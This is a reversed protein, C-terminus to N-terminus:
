TRRQMAECLSAWVTDQDPRADLVLHRKPDAQAQDLYGQRVRAHFAAGKQEMRDLDADFERERLLPNMRLMATHQDVDFIVVLDPWVQGLAIQGVRLIDAVPIGGATGQYALTSSIFRDALVLQGADLAPKIKESVLQARSAMYLLMECRIDMDGFRPDLLLQRVGEGIVTGGPERVELVDLGAAEAERVMRRFQTTKGSGDPGDFVVFRGRLRDFWSTEDHPMPLLIYSFGAQSRADCAPM